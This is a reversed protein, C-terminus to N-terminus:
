MPWHRVDHADHDGLVIRQESVADGEDEGLTVGFVAGMGM